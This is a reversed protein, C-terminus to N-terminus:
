GGAASVSRLSFGGGARYCEARALAIAARERQEPSSRMALVRRFAAGDYCLHVRGDHEYSVFRVGHREAVGLHADLTVPDAAPAADPSARRALRDAMTGLADLAEIGPEGNLTEQSASEIFASAYGIGLAEMGPQDRLFRVTTLLAPGDIAALSLRRIQSPHVYGGVERRHDYVLVHDLREGRIEVMEGAWLVATPRSSSKAAARLVAQDHMVIGVETASLPASVLLLLLALVTRLM